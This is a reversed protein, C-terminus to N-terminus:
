TRPPKGFSNEALSSPSLSPLSGDESLFFSNIETPFFLSFYEEEAKRFCERFSGESTIASILALIKTKFKRWLVGWLSLMQSPRLEYVRTTTIIYEPGGYLFASTIDPMSPTSVRRPHTHFLAWGRSTKARAKRWFIECYDRDGEFPGEIEGTHRNIFGWWENEEFLLHHLSRLAPLRALTHHDM